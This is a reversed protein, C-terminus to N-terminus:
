GNNAVEVPLTFALSRETLTLGLSRQDLSLGFSRETLTLPRYDMISPNVSLGFLTFHAVDSPTGVGLTIVQNIDAM